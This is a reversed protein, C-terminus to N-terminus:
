QDGKMNRVAMGAVQVAMECPDVSGVNAASLRVAFEFTLQDTMGVLVACVGADRQDNRGYAVAPHGEVEPLEEFLKLVGTKQARYAGTLGYPNRDLSSIDVGAPEGRLSRWECILGVDGEEVTGQDELALERTQESNLAQCPDRQYATTDLPNAVRPAGDAPLGDAPPETASPETTRSSPPHDAASPEGVSTSTCGAATLCIVVATLLERIRM